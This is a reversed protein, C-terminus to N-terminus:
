YGCLMKLLAAKQVETRGELIYGFVHIFDTQKGGVDFENYPNVRVKIDEKNFLGSADTISHVAKFDKKESVQSLINASCDIVVHPM